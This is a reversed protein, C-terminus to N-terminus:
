NLRITVTYVTVYPAGAEATVTIRATIPNSGSQSSTATATSSRRTAILSLNSGRRATVSYNLTAPNFAPSLPLSGVTINSLASDTSKVRLSPLAKVATNGDTDTAKVSLNTYTASPLGSYSCSYMNNLGPSLTALFTTGNYLEVVLPGDGLDTAIISVPLTQKDHISAPVTLTGFIPATTDIVILVASIKVSPTAKLKINLTTTGSARATVLGNQDVEAIATDSVSWDLLEPDLPEGDRSVQIERSTAKEVTFEQAELTLPVPPPLPKLPPRPATAQTCAALIVTTALIALFLLIHSRVKHYCSKKM